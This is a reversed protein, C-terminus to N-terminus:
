RVDPHPTGVRPRRGLFSAILAVAAGALSLWAGVEPLRSLENGAERYLQVGFAAMGGIAVAAALGTLWGGRPAMGIVALLALVLIAFGVTRVLDPEEEFAARYFARVDLDVAPIDRIWELFTGAAMAGAGALTLLMRALVGGYSRRDPSM